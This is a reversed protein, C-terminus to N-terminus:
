RLQSPKLHIRHMFVLRKSRRIRHRAAREIFQAGKTAVFRKGHRQYFAASFKLESEYPIERTVDFKQKVEAPNLGLKYGMALFAVDMGDGRHKWDGYEEVLAGENALIALEALQESRDRVSGSMESGDDASIKGEGNYGEGSLTFARGDPLIIKRATQQNVTLTGTKDSAIM